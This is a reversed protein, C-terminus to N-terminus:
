RGEKCPLRKEAGTSLTKLRRLVIRPILFLLMTRVMGLVSHVSGDCYRWQIRLRSWLQARRRRVSISTQDEIKYLLVQPVNALRLGARAARRCLEYDEAVEASYLGIKRFLHSRAMISPNVFPMTYYLRRVLAGNEVPAAFLYNSGTNKSTIVAWTGILDVDPRGALWSHCLELRQPHCWDGCDMRAIFNHGEALAATLGTNAAVSVGYNRDLEILRYDLGGLLAPYDPKACSGDDVLYLRFPVTQQRLSDLTMTIALGPEYVPLIVAIDPGPSRM